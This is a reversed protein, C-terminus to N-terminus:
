FPRFHLDLDLSKFDGLTGRDPNYNRLSGNSNKGKMTQLTSSVIKIEEAKSQLSKQRELSTKKVKKKSTRPFIVDDEDTDTDEVAEDTKSRNPLVTNTVKRFYGLM